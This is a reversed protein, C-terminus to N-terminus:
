SNQSESKVSSDWELLYQEKGDFTIRKALIRFNEGNEMRDFAGFYLNISKNKIPSNIVTDTLSINASNRNESNFNNDNIEEGFKGRSQRQLRSQRSTQQANMYSLECDKDQASDYSMISRIGDKSSEIARFPLHTPLPMSMPQIIESIIEVDSSKHRKTVKRRKSDGQRELDKASLRRKITRVIRIEPQKDFITSKGKKMIKGSFNLNAKYQSHFPNNLGHFNSPPPIIWDLTSKSSNEDSSDDNMMMDVQISENPTNSVSRNTKKRRKNQNKFLSAELVENCKMKDNLSVDEDKVTFVKIGLKKLTEDCVPLNIPIIIKPLTPPSKRRLCVSDNKKKSGTAPFRFEDSKRVISLVKKELKDKSHHKEFPLNLQNWKEWIFPVVDKLISFKKQSRIMMLEHVVLQTTDKWSMSSLRTVYENGDNCIKCCFVFFADGHMLYGKFAQICEVHFWQQCRTCQLMRKKWFGTEGCYCYIEEKNERHRSDWSLSSLDYPLKVDEATDDNENDESDSISIVESATCRDCCWPSSSISENLKICHRHYGRSCKNCVEVVDDDKVNKCIVCLPEDNDTQSISTTFKKLGTETAWKETNDDFKVLYNGNKIRVITGLYYRELKDDISKMLVDENMSFETKVFPKSEHNESESTDSNKSAENSNNYNNKIRIHYEPIGSTLITISSTNTPEINENDINPKNETSNYIFIKSAQNSYIINSSM